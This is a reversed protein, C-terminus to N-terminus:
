FFLILELCGVIHCSPCEEKKLIEEKSKGRPILVIGNFKCNSKSCKAPVAIKELDQNM